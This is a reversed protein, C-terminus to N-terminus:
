RPFAAIAGGGPAPSSADGGAGAAVCGWWRWSVSLTLGRINLSLPGPGKLNPAARKLLAPVAAATALAAPIQEVLLSVTVFAAAAALFGAAAGRRTTHGGFLRPAFAVQAIVHAGASAALARGDAGVALVVVALTVPAAGFTGAVAAGFRREAALALLMLSPAALLPVLVM